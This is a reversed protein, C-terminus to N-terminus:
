VNFQKNRAKAREEDEKDEKEIYIEEEISDPFIVSTKSDIVISQGSYDHLSCQKPSAMMLAFSTILVIIIVLISIFFSQFVMCIGWVLVFPVFRLLLKIRNYSYGEINALGLGTILKGLTAQYKLFYPIAVYCIIGSLLLPIMASLSTLFVYKSHVVQYFSQSILHEYADRYKLRLETTVDTLNINHATRYEEDQIVGFQDLIPNDESDKLYTFSCTKENGFPDSPNLGLVYINYWSITYYDKPLFTENNEVVIEKNYEPSANQEPNEIGEGTLYNLYYYRLTNDFVTYDDISEVIDVEGSENIIKLHSDLEYKLYTDELKNTWANKFVLNFCGYFLIASTAIYIALDIIATMIRRGRNALNTHRPLSYRSVKQEM